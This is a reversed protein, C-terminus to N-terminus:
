ICDGRLISNVPLVPNAAPAPRAKARTRTAIREKVLVAMIIRAKRQLVGQNQILRSEGDLSSEHVCCSDCHIWFPFPVLGCAM